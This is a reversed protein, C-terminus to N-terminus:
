VFLEGVTPGREPAMLGRVANGAFSIAMGPGVRPREDAGDDDIADVAGGGNRREAAAAAAERPTPQAQGRSKRWFFIAAATAVV